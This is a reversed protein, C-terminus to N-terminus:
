PSIGTAPAAAHDPPTAAGRWRGLGRANFAQRMQAGQGLRAIATRLFSASDDFAAHPATKDVM